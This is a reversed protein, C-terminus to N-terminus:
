CKVLRLLRGAALVFAQDRREECDMLAAILRDYTRGRMGKPRQWNTGLRAEIRRQQRWTQDLTDGSQSSYAVRQCTRCAFRGWRLFLLGARRQCKPCVFWPRTNGYNCATHTLGISQSGDRREGEEGIMYQLALSDAGHVLVGISGTPEGGRNWSWSFSRGARLYGGRHWVRIDVRRLQEAKARYGPRGAGFRMGGRGM